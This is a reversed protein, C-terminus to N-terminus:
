GEPRRTSLASEITRRRLVRNQDMVLGSCCFEVLFRTRVFPFIFSRKVWVYWYRSDKVNADESNVYFDIDTFTSQPEPDPYPGPMHRDNVHLFSTIQLSVM